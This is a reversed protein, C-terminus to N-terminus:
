RGGAASQRGILTDLKSNATDLKNDIKSVKDKLEKQTTEVVTLRTGHGLFNVAIYGGIGVLAAAVLGMIWGRGNKAPAPHRETVFRKQETLLRELREQAESQRRFFKEIQEDTM